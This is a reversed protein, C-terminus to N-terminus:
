ALDTGRSFISCCCGRTCTVKLILLVASVSVNSRPFGKGLSCCKSFCVNVVKFKSALIFYINIDM